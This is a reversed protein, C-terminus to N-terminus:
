CYITMIEMIYDPEKMGIIYFLVEDLIRSIADADGIQKDAFHAIVEYSPIHKLWYRWKKILAYAFCRRLKVLGQLVCFGSDLIFIKGTGHVPKSLHLLTGITSGLNDFEKKGLHAKCNNGEHLDVQWIINSLGCEKLFIVFKWPKSPVFMLGPCAYKNLWKSMSKDIAHIRFPIFNKDM